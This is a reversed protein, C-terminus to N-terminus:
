VRLMCYIIDGRGRGLIYPRGICSAYFLDNNGRSLILNNSELELLPRRICPVYSLSNIEQDLLSLDISM